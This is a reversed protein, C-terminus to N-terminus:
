YDLWSQNPSVAHKLMRNKTTATRTSHPIIAEGIYAAANAHLRMCDLTALALLLYLM